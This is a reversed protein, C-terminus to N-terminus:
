PSWSTSLCSAASLCLSVRLCGLSPRVYVTGMSLWGVRHLSQQEVKQFGRRAKRQGAERQVRSKVETHM